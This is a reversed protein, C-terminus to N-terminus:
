AHKGPGAKADTLKWSIRSATLYAVVGEPTMWGPVARSGNHRLDSEVHRLMEIEVPGTYLLPVVELNPTEFTGRKDNWLHTNFLAFHKEALGYKRQIGAGFWEGFHTGYGLDVFLSEQNAYVWTAFGYNDDVPTILRTRSQVGLIYPQPGLQGPFEPQPQDPIPQFQVCANTGDLKESVTMVENDLRAIKPWSQFVIEGM